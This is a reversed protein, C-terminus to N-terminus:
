RIKQSYASAQLPALHWQSLIPLVRPEEREWLPSKTWFNHYFDITSQKTYKERLSQTNSHLRMRFISPLYHMQNLTFFHFKEVFQSWNYHRKKTKKTKATTTKKVTGLFDGLFLVTWM